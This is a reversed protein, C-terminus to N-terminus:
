ALLPKLADQLAEYGRSKNIILFSEGGRLPIRAPDLATFIVCRVGRKALDRCCRLGALYFGESLIEDPPMEMNPDPDTWRLMMDVVAATYPLAESAALLKRFALETSVTQVSAGLGEEIRSKLDDAQIKDDEILLVRRRIM